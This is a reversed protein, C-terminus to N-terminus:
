HRWDGAARKNALCRTTAAPMSGRRWSRSSRCTPGQRATAPAAVAGPLTGTYAPGEPAGSILKSEAARQGAAARELRGAELREGFAEGLATMGEGVTKPFPRARSALAAGIARRRKIEELSMNPSFFGMGVLPDLIGSQVPLTDDAM